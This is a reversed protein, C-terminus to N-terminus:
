IIRGELIFRLCRHCEPETEPASKQAKQMEFDNLLPKLPFIIEVENRRRRANDILNILGAPVGDVEIIWNRVKDNKELSAFWKRQGEITLKPNTNMFRTVSESTRWYMIMELDDETIMRLTTSM